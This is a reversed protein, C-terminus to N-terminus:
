TKMRVPAGLARWGSHGGTMYKADFGADRLAAATRCGVHFGYACYVVVPKEKSLEGIWDQLQVRYEPVRGVIFGFTAFLLGVLIALVVLTGLLWKVVKRPSLSM